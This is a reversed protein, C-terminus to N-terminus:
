NKKKFTWTIRFTSVEEGTELRGVSTATITQGEGTAIAKEIAEAILGGDKCTFTTTGVAKKVFTASLDSVLMSIKKVGGYNETQMLALVGTSYEAVAAQAAFYISKFPNQSWWSYRVSVQAEEPTIHRIKIGIFWLAPLKLFLFFNLKLPNQLDQLMKKAASTKLEM